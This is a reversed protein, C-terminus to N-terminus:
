EDDLHLNEFCLYMLLLLNISFSISKIHNNM